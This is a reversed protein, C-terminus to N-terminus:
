NSYDFFRVFSEEINSDDGIESIVDTNDLETVRIVIRNKLDTSAILSVSDPETVTNAQKDMSFFSQVPLGWRWLYVDTTPNQNLNTADITIALDKLGDTGTGPILRGDFIANSEGIFTIPTFLQTNNDWNVHVNKFSDQVYCENPYSVYLFRAVLHNKWALNTSDAFLGKINKVSGTLGLSGEITTLTSINAFTEEISSYNPEITGSLYKMKDFFGDPIKTLKSGKFMRQVSSLFEGYTQLSSPSILTLGSNMFLEDGRTITASTKFINDHLTALARTGKFMGTITLTLALHSFFDDSIKKLVLVNLM